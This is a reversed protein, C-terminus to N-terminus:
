EAWIKTNPMLERLEAIQDPTMLPNYFFRLQKLNTLGALPSLDSIQTKGLWLYTLNTLEALPNLDNIQPETLALSTLNTMGALVSIDTIQNESLSLETLNTLETLPSIDTIQSGKLNLQTLNKLNTLPSIDTVQNGRLDLLKLNTLGALISLDSYTANSQFPMAGTMHSDDTLIYLSELNVMYKLPEIDADTLNTFCQLVLETENTSYRQGKIVIFTNAINIEETPETAPPEYTVGYNAYMEIIDDETMNYYVGSDIFMKIIDNETLDTYKRYIELISERERENANSDFVYVPVKECIPYKEILIEWAGKTLDPDSTNFDSGDILTYYAHMKDLDRQETICALVRNEFFSKEAIAPLLSLVKDQNNQNNEAPEATIAANPGTESFMDGINFVSIFSVLGIVLIIAAAASIIKSMHLERRINVHNKEIRLMSDTLKALTEDNIHDIFYQKSV